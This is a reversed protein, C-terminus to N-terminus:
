FYKSCNRYREHQVDWNIYFNKKKEKAVENLFKLNTIMASAIKNYKFKLKRIQRLSSVDWCSAFM